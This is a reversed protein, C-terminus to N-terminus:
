IGAKKLFKLCKRLDDEEKDTLNTRKVLFITIAELVQPCDRVFELRNIDAEMEKLSLSIKNQIRKEIKTNRKMGIIPGLLELKTM